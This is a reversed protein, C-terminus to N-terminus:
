LKVAVMIWYTLLALCSSVATLIMMGKVIDKEGLPGEALILRAVTVPAGKETSAKLLGNDL